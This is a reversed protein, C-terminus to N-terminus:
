SARGVDPQVDDGFHHVSGYVLVGISRYIELEM